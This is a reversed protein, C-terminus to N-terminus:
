EDYADVLFSLVRENLREKQWHSHLCLADLAARLVHNEFPGSDPFYPPVYVFIASQRHELRQRNWALLHTKGYGPPAIVTLCRVADRQGCGDVVRKLLGKVQEYLLDADYVVSWPSQVVQQHFPWAGLERLRQRLGDAPNQSALQLNLGDISSM